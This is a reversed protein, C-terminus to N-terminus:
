GCGASFLLDSHFRIIRKFTSGAKVLALGLVEGGNRDAGIKGSKFARIAQVVVFVIEAFYVSVFFQGCLM